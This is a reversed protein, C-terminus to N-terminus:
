FPRKILKTLAMFLYSSRNEYYVRQRLIESLRAGMIGRQLGVAVGALPPERTRVFPRTTDADHNVGIETSRTVQRAEGRKREGEAASCPPFVARNFERQTVIARV